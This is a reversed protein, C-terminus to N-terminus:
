SYTLMNKLFEKIFKAFSKTEFFCPQFIAKVLKVDEMNPHIFGTFGRHLGFAERLNM